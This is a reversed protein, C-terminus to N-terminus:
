KVPEIKNVLWALAKDQWESDTSADLYREYFYDVSTLARRRYQLVAKSNDLIVCSRLMGERKFLRWGDSLMKQVEPDLEGPRLERFDFLVSFNDGAGVMVRVTEFRWQKMEDITIKGNLTVEFGFDEKTTRYM